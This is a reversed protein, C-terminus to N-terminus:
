GNGDPLPARKAICYCYPSFAQSRPLPIFKDIFWSTWSLRALAALALRKSWFGVRTSGPEHINVVGFGTPLLYGFDIIELGKGHAAVLERVTLPIHVAYISPACVRQLLGITGRMNPIITLIRGGPRVLAHLAQICRDTDEFHEVLGNSIVCDAVGLLREPPSFIDCCEVQAEVHEAAARKRFLDCGVPSYDVGIIQYGRRGLYVLLSSDACGAELVTANTPLDRLARGILNAVTRDRYDRVFPSDPRFAGHPTAEWHENWYHQGARDM